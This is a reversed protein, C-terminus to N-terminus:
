VARAPGNLASDPTAVVRVSGSDAHGKRDLVVSVRVTGGIGGRKLSDPYLAKPERLVVPMVSLQDESYVHQTDPAQASVPAVSLLLGAFSLVPSVSSIRASVM